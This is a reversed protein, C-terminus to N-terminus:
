NDYECSVCKNVARGFEFVLGVTLTSTVDNNMVNAGNMAYSNNFLDPRNTDLVGELGDGNWVYLNHQWSLQLQWRKAFKWKVGLGVPIYVSKSKEKAKLDHITLGVGAFMYPTISRMHINYEDLGLEFFNYEGVLDVHWMPYSSSGSQLGYENDEDIMNVVRQHQGKVQFAWRPNVKVRVQAGYTEATSMFVHPALEGVYYAAGGQVGADMFYFRPMEDAALACAPWLAAWVVVFSFNTYCRRIASM